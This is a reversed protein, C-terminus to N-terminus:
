ASLLHPPGRRVIARALQLLKPPRHKVLVTSTLAVSLRNACALGSLTQIVDVYAGITARVLGEVGRSTLALVTWLAREGSALWLGVAAAAALHALAMVANAGTLDAFVHLLPSPVSLHELVPPERHLQDYLSGVRRGGDALDPAVPRSTMAMATTDPAPAGEHGAMMTLAVHILTQGVMLLLVVRATSAPRGLLSAAVATSVLVLAALAGWGPLLGEASVHGFGGVAVSVVAVMLARLWRLAPGASRDM